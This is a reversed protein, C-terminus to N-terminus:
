PQVSSDSASGTADRLDAGCRADADSYGDQSSIDIPAKIGGEPTAQVDFGAASMCKAYAIALDKLRAQEEPDVELDSVVNAMHKQCEADAAVYAEVDVDNADEVAMSIGMEQMCAMYLANAENSDTPADVTAGDSDPEETGSGLSPVTSSSGNDSQGGCAALVLTAALVAVSLRKSRLQKTSTTLDAYRM